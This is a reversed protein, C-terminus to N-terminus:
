LFDRILESILYLVQTVAEVELEGDADWLADAPTIIVLRNVADWEVAMGLAEMIFRIPVMTRNLGTNIEPATDMAYTEGNLTYTESDITLVVTNGGSTITVQRTDGDWGVQAGLAEAVFRLPVMTRDDENIYPMVAKNNPDIHTLVGNKVAAYNGDQLIVTGELREAVTMPTEIMPPSTSLNESGSTLNLAISVPLSSEYRNGGSSAILVDRLYFAAEGSAGSKVTFRMTAVTGGNNVVDTAAAAAIVATGSEPINSAALMSSWPSALSPNGHATLKDADYVIDAQLACVPDSASVSVTLTVTKRDASLDATLTFEPPADWTAFSASPLIASILFAAILCILSRKGKKIKKM